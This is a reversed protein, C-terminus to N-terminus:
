RGGSVDITAGTTYSAADSLLWLVARAVEDPTGGRKMPRDSAVLKDAAARNSLYSLCVAYGGQAALSAVAAGIGRSGGTVILVKSASSPSPMIWKGAFM